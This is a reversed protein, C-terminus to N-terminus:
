DVQKYLDDIAPLKLKLAGLAKDTTDDAISVGTVEVPVSPGTASVTGGKGEFWSAQALHKTRFGFNRKVIEFYVKASHDKTVWEIAKQRREEESGGFIVKVGHETTYSHAHSADIALDHANTKFDV